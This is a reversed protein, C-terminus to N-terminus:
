SAQCPANLPHASGMPGPAAGTAFAIASQWYDDAIAEFLMTDVIQGDGRCLEHTYAAAMRVAGLIGAAIASVPAGVKVPPRGPGSGAFSILGCLGQAIQDLEKRDAYSGTRGFGLDRM